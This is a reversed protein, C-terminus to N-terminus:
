TITYTFTAKKKLGAHNIATARLKHTGKTLKLGKVKCSKIKSTPDKAKCKVKSKVPLAGNAYTKQIGKFKLKVPASADRKITVSSSGTGGISKASCTLPFVGDTTVSTPGCGTQTVLISGTETITWTVSVSGTHWGNPAAPSVTRAIAPPTSDVQQLARDALLFGSGCDLDPQGATPTCDLANATNTMIAAVQTVTLAPNASRILAAIGAASPAAASTGFFTPFTSVSTAVGDAAALAPKARVDFVGLPVGDKDFRRTVAPGRSSFAEPFAPNVWNSAAIALAGRASAADPNIAHSNTAYETIGFASV